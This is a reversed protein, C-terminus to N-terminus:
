TLCFINYAAVRAVKFNSNPPPRMLSSINPVLITLQSNQTYHPLCYLSITIDFIITVVTKNTYPFKM